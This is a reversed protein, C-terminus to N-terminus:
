KAPNNSMKMHSRKQCFQTHKPSKKGILVSHHKDYPIRIENANLGPCIELLDEDVTFLKIQMFM